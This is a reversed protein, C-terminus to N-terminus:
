KELSIAVIKISKDNPLTLGTLKKGTDLRLMYDGLTTTLPRVGATTYRYPASFAATAGDGSPLSGWDAITLSLPSTESGYQLGFNAAVMTDSAAAALLHIAKYKGGPLVITQGTCAVVNPLGERVDPYLFSVAHNSTEGTGVQSTYYGSPYLPPAPKGLVLPIADVEATGDPPLTEVPLTAGHGDFGGTKSVEDAAIGVTNFSKSLDIALVSGKGVVNVFAQLTDEGRSVPLTSQWPENGLRLDWVLAYRGPQKPTRFTTTINGDTAAPLLDKTLSGVPGGEWERETGDLYYWHYGIHVKSKLLTEAGSNQLALHATEEKDAEVTRPLDAIIFSAGPLGHAVTLIEDYVGAVPAGLSDPRVFWHLRYAGPPLPQGNADTTPVPLSVVAIQGPVVPAADLPKGGEAVMKPNTGDPDMTQIKYGLTYGVPWSTAGDNRVQVTTKVESGAQAVGPTATSLFTASATGVGADAGIVTVPVQLPTDGAYSFWRDQSQVMDFVLTYDGPELDEGFNDRAVLGVSLTLAQGPLVDKAIPIRPASDDYLKGDKYWRTSLSYGEGARWPLTGANEIRIPIQYLTKPYITHPTAHALYKTHWPRSGDYVIVAAKTADAYQEGYQRSAAIETGHLFDNWSDVVVEEPTSVMAVQWATDYTRGGKRSIIGNKDIRGPSVSAIGNNYFLRAIPTGDALAKKADAGGLSLDYVLVGSQDQGAIQSLARFEAPIHAYILNLDPQGATADVGVLPYDLGAAKMDKLATVFADLERMLLADDLRTRLLVVEIGARRLDALQESHWQPRLGSFWPGAGNMPQDALLTGGSANWVNQGPAKRSDGNYDLRYIGMIYAPGKPPGLTFSTSDVTVGDPTATNSATQVPANGNRGKGKGRKPAPPLIVPVELGAPNRIGGPVVKIVAGNPMDILGSATNKGPQQPEPTTLAAPNDFPSQTTNPEEAMTPAPASVAEAGFALRTAAPWDGSVITGNIRPFQGVVKACVVKDPTSAIGAGATVFTIKVWKSPNQVDGKGKIKASLSYLKDAPTGESERDRSIVNFGWITGPEPAKSRGLETWPIALEVDYGTTKADPKNLTGNVTAAYKYSYVAKGQPIKTGDGVSFYAGQAASVAMQFTQPTRVKARADDTEFFVEVDDDQQPQSTTTTNTGYVAPDHVRFAAYFYYDDWTTYLTEVRTESGNATPDAKPAAHALSLTLTLLLAPLLLVFLAASGPLRKLM